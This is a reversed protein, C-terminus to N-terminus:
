ENILILRIRLYILSIVVSVLIGRTSLTITLLKVSLLTFGYLVVIILFIIALIFLSNKLIKFAYIPIIKEKWHESIKSSIILRFAKQYIDVVSKVYKIFKLRLFIEICLSCAVALYVYDLM